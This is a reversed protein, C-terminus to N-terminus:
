RDTLYEDLRRNIDIARRELEDFRGQAALHPDFVAGTFGVLEAGADLYGLYNGGTVGGSVLLPVDSLPGRVQEVYTPGGLSEIPFVKVWDAGLQHARHIETPTAAGIIVPLSLGHAADAVEAVVVPTVIYEAGSDYAEKVQEATTVTGAGAIADIRGAVESLAGTAGPTDLTVEVAEFGGRVAAGIGEVAHEAAQMRFIAVLTADKLRARRSAFLKENM